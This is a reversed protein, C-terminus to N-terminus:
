SRVALVYTRLPDKPSAGIGSIWGRNVLAALRTRTARVSRGIRAAMASTSLGGPAERLTEVIVQDLGELNPAAHPKKFITVRFHLGVEELHPDRLGAERCARNMRHIGSGWQEILGLDRFVRGIVRNRLKSIGQQIDEMTLGFPLLGPNEVVLRDDFISIRIPSGRQSYDAHVVANIVSERVADPPFGWRDSHRVSGVITRRHDHKRVFAIAEEVATPPLSLIDQSDAILAKDKGEFRGAQIWADPFRDLRRKGFLIVGGVTPVVRGHYTTVLRLVRLDRRSLKRHPAYLESAARFDLAESRWEAVPSEDYSESRSIRRLEDLMARDVLRNTSGVRVFTGQEIGLSKLSHPRSPSPHVRIALVQKRRWPLAQIDPLVLPRISDSILNAIREEDVLVDQVGRV